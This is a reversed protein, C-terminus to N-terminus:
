KRVTYVSSAVLHCCKLQPQETLVTVLWDTNSYKGPCCIRGREVAVLSTRIYVCGGIRRVFSSTEGPNFRGPRM